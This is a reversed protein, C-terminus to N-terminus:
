HVNFTLVRQMGNRTFTLNIVSATRLPDLLTPNRMAAIVGVGNASRLLDRSRIGVAYLPNTPKIEGLRAGTWGGAGRVPWYMTSSQLAALHALQFNIWGRPVSFTTPGTQVPAPPPPEECSIGEDGKCQFQYNNCMCVDYDHEAACNTGGAAVCDTQEQDASAVCSNYEDTCTEDQRCEDLEEYAGDIDESQTVAVAFDKDCSDVNDPCTVSMTCHNGGDDVVGFDIIGDILTGNPYSTVGCQVECGNLGLVGIWDDCVQACQDADLAPPPPPDTKDLYYDNCGILLCTATLLSRM